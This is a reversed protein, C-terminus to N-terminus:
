FVVGGFAFNQTIGASAIAPILAIAVTFNFPALNIPKNCTLGIMAASAPGVSVLECNGGGAYTGRWLNDASYEDGFAIEM